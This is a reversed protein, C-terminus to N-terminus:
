SGAQLLESVTVIKYGRKTIEPLVKRLMPLTWSRRDHCIIIGGPRLMSLIHKANVNWYPIQPDHPYINGLVLRYDMGEVIDLMRKTFFGSGPRFYKGLRVMGTQQYIGDIWLDVERIQKTLQESSLDRSPEDHMAHNGLENGNRVMQKLLERRGKEQAQAGILFFTATANYEKLLNLIEKTYPTPADDITLAIIKESTEVRFLASPFKKVFYSILLNPPKYIMYFPAILFVVLCALIAFVVMRHRRGRSLPLRPISISSFM